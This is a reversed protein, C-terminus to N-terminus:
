SCSHRKGHHEGQEIGQGEEKRIGDIPFCSRSLPEDAGAAYDEAVCQGCNHPYNHSWSPEPLPYHGTAPIFSSSFFVKNGHLTRRSLCLFVSFDAPFFAKETFGCFKCATDWIQRGLAAVASQGLWKVEGYRLSKLQLAPVFYEQCPHQTEMEFYPKCTPCQLLM